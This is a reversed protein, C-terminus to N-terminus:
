CVEETVVTRRLEEAARTLYRGQEAGTVRDRDFIAYVVSLMKRGAACFYASAVHDRDLHQRLDKQSELTPLSM